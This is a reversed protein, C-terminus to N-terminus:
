EIVFDVIIIARNSNAANAIVSTRKSYIKGNAAEEALLRLERAIAEQTSVPFSRGDGFLGHSTM